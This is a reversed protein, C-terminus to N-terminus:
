LGGRAVKGAGGGARMAKMQRGYYGYQMAKQGGRGPAGSADKASELEPIFQFVMMPAFVALLVIAFVMLQISLQNAPGGVGSGTSALLATLSLPAAGGGIGSNLAAGLGLVVLMVPKMLILGALRELLKRMSTQYRTFMTLAVFPSLVLAINILASRAILMLGLLLMSIVVLLMMVGQLVGAPSLVSFGDGPSVGGVVATLLDGSSDVQVRAVADVFAFAVQDAIAIVMATVSVLMVQLLVVKPLTVVLKALGVREQGQQASLVAAGVGITFVVGMLVLALGWSVGYATVVSEGICDATAGTTVSEHCLSFADGTDVLLSGVLSLVYDFLGAILDFLRKVVQDFLAEAAGAVADVIVRLADGISDTLWNLVGVMVPGM